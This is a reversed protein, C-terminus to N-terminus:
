EDGSGHSTGRAAGASITGSAVDVLEMATLLRSFADDGEAVILHEDLLRDLAPLFRREAAIVRAREAVKMLSAKDPRPSALVRRLDHVVGSPVRQDATEPDAEAALLDMAELLLGVGRHELEPPPDGLVIPGAWLRTRGTAEEGLSTIRLDSRITTLDRVASEYLVHVDVAAVEFRKVTKASRTLEEALAVSHSFPHHPKSFVLGAAVSVRTPATMAGATAQQLARVQALTSVVLEQDLLQEFAAALATTFAFGHRADLLVTIDDGGVLIPLVWGTGAGPDAAVALIARAVATWAAVELAESVGSLRELLEQGTYVRRLNAFIDGIGNGDAHLTAVWGNSGVGDGAELAARSVVAADLLAREDDTDVAKQLRRLLSQRAERTDRWLREVGASAPQKSGSPSRGEVVTAVAPRGTYACVQTFPLNADRASVSPLVARQRSSARQAAALGSGLRSESLDESGIVGWVQLDPAELLARRTVSEIVMRGARESALLIGLGSARVVHEIDEGTEKRAETVAAVIWEFGVRWILRSAAVNLRQKNTGFVLAQNSGTEIVVWRRSQWKTSM